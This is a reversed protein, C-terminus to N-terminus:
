LELVVECVQIYLGKKFYLFFKFAKNNIREQNTQINQVENKAALNM